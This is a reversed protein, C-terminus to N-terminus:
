MDSRYRISTNRPSEKIMRITNENIVYNTSPGTTDSCLKTELRWGRHNQWILGIIKRHEWEARPLPDGNGEYYLNDGDPDKDVFCLGKYKEQLRFCQARDRKVVGLAVRPGSGTGDIANQEWDEFRDEFIRMESADDDDEDTDGDYFSAEKFLKAEWDKFQELEEDSVLKLERRLWTRVYVLDICRGIGLRNRNKVLINGVDKWTREAPGSGVILPVLKFALKQLEPVEAGWESWWELACKSHLNNWAASSSMHTLGAGKNNFKALQSVMTGHLGRWEDDDKVQLVKRALSWLDNTCTASHKSQGVFLPDLMYTAQVIPHQLEHWRALFVKYIKDEISDQGGTLATEEMKKRVYLQTGHLKSIVPKQGDALRCLLLLPGTAKVVRRMLEWKVDGNIADAFPDNHFRKEQYVGSNVVRRLLPKMQLFRKLKLLVGCYRTVTPWVFATKEGDKALSKRLSTCAHTSFWHQADTVWENLEYLGDIGGEEKFCDKIILSVEHSVCHLFSIWPYFTQIMVETTTWDTGGDVVILMVNSPGATEIAEKM